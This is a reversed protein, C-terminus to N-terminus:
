VRIIRVQARLHSPTYIVADVEYTGDETQNKGSIVIQDGQSIDTNKPLRAFAVIREGYQGGIEPNRDYMLTHHFSGRVTTDVEDAIWLGDERVIVEPATVKRVIINDRFGRM